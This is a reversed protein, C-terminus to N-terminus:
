TPVFKANDNLEPFWNRRRTSFAKFTPTIQVSHVGAQDQLVYELDEVDSIESKSDLGLIAGELQEEQLMKIFMAVMLRLHNCGAMSVSQLFFILPDKWICILIAFFCEHM